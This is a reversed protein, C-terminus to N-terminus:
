LRLRGTLLYIQTQDPRVSVPSPIGTTDFLVEAAPWVSLSGVVPDFPVHLAIRKGAATAIITTQSQAPQAACCSFDRWVASQPTQNECPLRQGAPCCDNSSLTSITCAFASPSLGFLSLWLMWLALRRSKMSEFSADDLRPASRRSLLRRGGPTKSGHGPDRVSNPM